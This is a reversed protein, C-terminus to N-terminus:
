TSSEVKKRAIELWPPCPCPQHCGAARDAAAQAVDLAHQGEVWESVMGNHGRAYAMYLGATNVTAVRACSAGNRHERIWTSM